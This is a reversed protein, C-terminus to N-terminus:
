RERRELRIPASSPAPFRACPHGRAGVPRHRPRTCASHGGLPLGTAVQEASRAGRLDGRHPSLWVGEMKLDVVVVRWCAWTALGGQTGHWAGGRRRAVVELM